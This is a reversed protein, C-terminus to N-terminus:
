QSYPKDNECGQREVDAYQLRSDLMIHILLIMVMSMAYLAATTVMAIDGMAMAISM